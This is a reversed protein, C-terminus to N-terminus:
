GSEVSGGFDKKVNWEYQGYWPGIGHYYDVRATTCSGSCARTSSRACSALLARQVPVEFCVCRRARRRERIASQADGEVTTGREIAIPKEIILHKGARAAAAAQEAHQDHPTCVDIVDISPDALMEEFSTFPKLPVGYTEELVRPDHERRSCVATVNAGDVNKFTEIHAGAVWGLGVVGINLDSM